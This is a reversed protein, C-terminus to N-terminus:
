LGHEVVPSAVPILLGHAWSGMSWLSLLWRFSFGTHGLARAGCCSFGDSHSAWADCSSLLSQENVALSLESAAVFIWCLWLYVFLFIKKLSYSVLM